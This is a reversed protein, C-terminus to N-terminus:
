SQHRVRALLLDARSQDRDASPIILWGLFYAAV